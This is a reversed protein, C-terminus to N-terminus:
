KRLSRFVYLTRHDYTCIYEYKLIGTAYVPVDGGGHTEKDTLIAAQQAYDINTTDTYSPDDRSVYNSKGTYQYNIKSGTAYTLTTYAVRDHKSYDAIGTHFKICNALLIITASQCRAIRTCVYTGLISENRNPYGNISMTHGLGGTVIVLTEELIGLDHLVQM